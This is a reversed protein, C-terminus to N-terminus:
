TAVTSILNSLANTSFGSMTEFFADAFNPIHGSIIYPLSGFLTFLIWISTVIFYGDKRTLTRDSPQPLKVMATAIGLIMAATTIFAWFDNEGYYLAVLATIAIFFCEIYLLKGCIKVIYKFNIM